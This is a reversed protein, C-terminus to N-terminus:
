KQLFDFILISSRKEGTRQKGGEGNEAGEVSFFALFLPAVGTLISSVAELNRRTRLLAPFSLHFLFFSPFSPLPLPPRRRCLVEVESWEEM